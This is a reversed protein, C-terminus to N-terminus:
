RWWGAAGLFAVLAEVGVWVFISWKVGTPLRDIATM